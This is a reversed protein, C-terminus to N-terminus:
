RQSEIAEISPTVTVRVALRQAGGGLIVGRMPTVDGFDRGWALTRARRRRHLQQDSRHGGLRGPRVVALGLRALRRRGRPARARAAALHPPLRQRLARRARDLAPLRDDPARLGARRPAAQAGGQAADVRQDRRISSSNRTSAAGSTWRRRSWAAGARSARPLTTPSSMRARSTRRTTSFSPRSSRRGTSPTSARACRRGGLRPAALAAQARPRSAAIGRARAAGRAARRDAHLTPNGYYDRRETMEGPAPDIRIRRRAVQWPARAAHSAPAPAVARGPELLHLADRPPHLRM